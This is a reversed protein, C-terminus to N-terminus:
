NGAVRRRIKRRKIKTNKTEEWIIMPDSGFKKMKMSIKSSKDIPPEPMNTLKSIIQQTMENVKHKNKRHTWDFDEHFVIEQILITKTEM